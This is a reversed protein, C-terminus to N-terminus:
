VASRSEVCHELFHDLEEPKLNHLQNYTRQILSRVKEGVEDWWVDLSSDSMDVMRGDISRIMSKVLEDSFRISDGMSRNAAFKKDGVSLAWVICHRYLVPSGDPEFIDAAPIGKKNTNTLSARFRLFFAVRGRPITLNEPVAAWAPAGGPRPEPLSPGLPRPIVPKEDLHKLDSVKVKDDGEAEHEPEAYRLPQEALGPPAQQLNRLAAEISAPDTAVSGPLATSTPTAPNNFASQDTM